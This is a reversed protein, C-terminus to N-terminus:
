QKIRYIAKLLEDLEVYHNIKIGKCATINIFEVIGPVDIYESLKPEFIDTTNYVVQGNNIVYYNDVCNLFLYSNKDVLIVRRGYEVIKKFLTKFFDIDKKTLGKSFNVLKITKNQLKSALIVKNKDRSSLDKFEKNLFESSLGVMKLSDEPKHTLIEKVLGDLVDDQYETSIVGIITGQLKELEM